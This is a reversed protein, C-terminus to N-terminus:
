SWGSGDSFPKLQLSAGNSDIVFAGAGMVTDTGGTHVGSQSGTTAIVTGGPVDTVTFHGADVVTKVYYVTDPSLGTPLAGTSEFSVPDDAVRGHAAWAVVGPSAITMTVTTPRKPVITINYTAADYKKDVIRVPKTRASSLPFIVRTAAAVTKKINIQDVDDTAVTVNGAATVTRETLATSDVARVFHNGAADIITNAGDDPSTSGTDLNFNAALARIYLGGYQGTFDTNRVETADAVGVRSHLKDYALIESASHDDLPAKAPHPSAPM